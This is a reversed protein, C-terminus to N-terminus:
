LSVPLRGAMSGAFSGTETKEGRSKSARAARGDGGRGRSPDVGAAKAVLVLAESMAAITLAVIIQHALKTM